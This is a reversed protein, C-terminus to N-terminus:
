KQVQIDKKTAVIERVSAKKKEEMGVQHEFSNRTEIQLAKPIGM